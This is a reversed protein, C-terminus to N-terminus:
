LFIRPSGGIELLLSVGWKFVQSVASLVQFLNWPRRKPQAPRHLPRVRSLESTAKPHSSCLPLPSPSLPPSPSFSLLWALFLSTVSIVCRCDSNYCSM